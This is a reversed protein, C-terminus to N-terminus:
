SVYVRVEVFEGELMAVRKIMATRRQLYPSEALAGFPKCDLATDRTSNMYLIEVSLDENHLGTASRLRELKELSKSNCIKELEELKRKDLELMNSALGLRKLNDEDWNEPFGEDKIILESIIYAKTNLSNMRITESKSPYYSLVVYILYISLSIFLAISILFYVNIQGRSKKSSQM